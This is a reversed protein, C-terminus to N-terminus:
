TWESISPLSRICTDTMMDNKQGAFSVAVFTLLVMAIMMGMTLTKRM